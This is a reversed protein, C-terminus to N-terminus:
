SVTTASDVYLYTTITYPITASFYFIFDTLIFRIVEEYFVLMM